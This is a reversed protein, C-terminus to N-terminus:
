AFGMSGLSNNHLAVIHEADRRAYRNDDDVFRGVRHEMDVTWIEYAISGDENDQREVRWRLRLANRGAPESM